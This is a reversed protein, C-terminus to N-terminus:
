KATDAIFQSEADLQKHFSNQDMFIVNSTLRSSVTPSNLLVGSSAGFSIITLLSSITLQKKM